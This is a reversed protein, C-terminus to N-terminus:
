PTCRSLIAKAAQLQVAPDESELLKELVAHAKAELKQRAQETASPARRWPPLMMRQVLEKDIGGPSPPAPKSNDISNM